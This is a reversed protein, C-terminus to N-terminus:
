IHKLIEKKLMIGIVTQADALYKVINKITEPKYKNGEVLKMQEFVIDTGIIFPKPRNETLEEISKKLWTTKGSGPLGIFAKLHINNFNLVM